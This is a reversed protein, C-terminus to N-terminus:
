GCAHGSDHQHHREGPSRERGVGGDRTMLWERVLGILRAEPAVVALVSPTLEPRSTHAGRCRPSMRVLDDHLGTGSSNALVIKSLRPQPIGVAASVFPLEWSRGPRGPRRGAADAVDDDADVLRLVRRRGRRRGRRRLASASGLASSASGSAPRRGGRRVGRRGWASAVSTGQPCRPHRSRSGPLCAGASRCTRHAQPRRSCFSPKTTISTM